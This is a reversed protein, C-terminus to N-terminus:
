IYSLAYWNHCYAGRINSAIIQAYVNDSMDLVRFFFGSLTQMITRHVNGLTSGYKNYPTDMMHLYTQYTPEAQANDLLFQFVKMDAIKRCLLISEENRDDYYMDPRSFYKVWVTALVLLNKNQEADASYLIGNQDFELVYNGLNVLNSAMQVLNANAGESLDFLFQENRKDM